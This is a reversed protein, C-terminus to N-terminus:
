SNRKVLFERLCDEGCFHFEKVPVYERPTIDVPPDSPKPVEAKLNGKKEPDISLELTLAPWHPYRGGVRKGCQDCTTNTEALAELRKHIQDFIEM